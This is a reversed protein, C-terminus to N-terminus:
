GCAMMMSRMMGPTSPKSAVRRNFASPVVFAMGTNAPLERLLHSFAELGGASAGIGVIPFTIRESSESPGDAPPSKPGVVDRLPKPSRTPSLKKRLDKRKTPNPLQPAGLRFSSAAGWRM